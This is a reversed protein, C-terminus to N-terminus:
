LSFTARRQLGHESNRDPLINGLNHVEPGHLLSMFVRSTVDIMSERQRPQSMEEFGADDVDSEPLTELATEVEEDSESDSAMDSFTDLALKGSGGSSQLDVTTLEGSTSADVGLGDHALPSHHQCIALTTQGKRMGANLFFAQMSAHQMEDHDPLTLNNNSRPRPLPRPPSRPAPPEAEQPPLQIFTPAVEIQAPPASGSRTYARSAPQQQQHQKPSEQDEPSKLLEILEGPRVSGQRQIHTSLRRSTQRLQANRKAAGMVHIENKTLQRRMAEVKSWIQSDVGDPRTVEGTSLPLSRRPRPEAEPTLQLSTEQSQMLRSRAANLQHRTEDLQKELQTIICDREELSTRSQRLQARGQVLKLHSARRLKSAEELETEMEQVQRRLAANELQLSDYDCRLAQENMNMQHEAEARRHTATRLTLKAEELEDAQAKAQSQVRAIVLMAAEALALASGDGSFREPFAKLGEVLRYRVQDLQTQARSDRCPEYKPSYASADESPVVQPSDM